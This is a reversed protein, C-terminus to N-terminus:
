FGRRYYYIKSVTEVLDSLISFAIILFFLSTQKFIAFLGLTVLFGFCLTYHSNRISKLDILEDREDKKEEVIEIEEQTSHTAIAHTIAKIITLVITLVIHAVIRLPILLLFAIAWFEFSDVLSLEASNYRLYAVILFPISVVLTTILGVVNQKEENLM